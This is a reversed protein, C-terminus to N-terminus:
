FVKVGRSPIAARVSARITCRFASAAGPLQLLGDQRLLGRRCTRRVPTTLEDSEGASKMGAAVEDLNVIHYTGFPRVDEEAERSWRLSPCAWM